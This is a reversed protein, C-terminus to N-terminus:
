YFKEFIKDESGRPIGLGRDLITIQACPLPATHQEVRLLIKKTAASYKEANSLLNVLVQALADRDGNVVLPSAPLECEFQFGNTELHPRYSAATERVLATLDCSQF